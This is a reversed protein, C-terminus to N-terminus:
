HRVRNCCYLLTQTEGSALLPASHSQPSAGKIHSRMEKVIHQHETSRTARVANAAVVVGLQREEFAITYASAGLLFVIARRSRQTERRQDDSGCVPDYREVKGLLFMKYEGFTLETM